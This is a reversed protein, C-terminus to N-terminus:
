HCGLVAGGALSLCGFRFSSSIVCAGAAPLPAAPLTDLSLVPAAPPTAARAERPQRPPSRRPRRIALPGHPRSAIRSGVAKREDRAGRYGPVRTGLPPRQGRPRRNGREPRRPHLLEAQARARPQLLLPPAPRCAIPFQQQVCHKPSSRRSVPRSCRAPPPYAAACARSARGSIPPSPAQRGRGLERDGLVWRPLCRRRHAGPKSEQVCGAKFKNWTLADTWTKSKRKPRLLAPPVQGRPQYRLHIKLLLWKRWARIFETLDLAAPDCRVSSM